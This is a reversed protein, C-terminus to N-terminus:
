NNGLLFQLSEGLRARWAEESHDAGPYTKSVFDIGPKWGQQVLLSDIRDQYPGYAADLGVTGHDFWIRGPRLHKDRLYGEYAAFLPENSVATGPIAMPWHTSLCGAARFVRPYEALGYLSVLGGMSSGMIFSTERETRYRGDIVPKLVNVLFALYADSFPAPGLNQRIASDLREYAAQPYYQRGREAGRHDIGVIIIPPIKGTTILEAAVTDVGWTQRNWSTARRAGDFLNQGDQMYLVPYRATAGDYGQPLWVTVVMPGAGSAMMEPALLTGPGAEAAVVMLLAALWRWM